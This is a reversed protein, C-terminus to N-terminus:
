ARAPGPLLVGPDRGRPGAPPRRPGERRFRHPSRLSARRCRDGARDPWSPRTSAREWPRETARKRAPAPEGRQGPRGRRRGDPDPRERPQDPEVAVRIAELVSDRVGPRDLAFARARGGTELREPLQCPSRVPSRWNASARSGSPSARPTREPAPSASAGRRSAPGTGRARPAAPSATGSKSDSARASGASM